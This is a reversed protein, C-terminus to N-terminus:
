CYLNSNSLISVKTKPNLSANGSLTSLVEKCTMEMKAASFKFSPFISSPSFRHCIKYLLQLRPNTHQDRQHALYLIHQVKRTVMSKKVYELPCVIQRRHISYTKKENRKTNNNKTVELLRLVKELPCTTVLIVKIHTSIISSRSISVGFVTGM